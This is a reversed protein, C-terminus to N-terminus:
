SSTDGEDLHFRHLVRHMVPALILGALAVFVLGSFLAYGTAFLKGGTTVPAHIPGMGGLLMSAELFADVWAMGELSHYGYAGTFLALAVVPIAVLAHLLMRRAFAPRSLMPERMGEYFLRQRKRRTPV